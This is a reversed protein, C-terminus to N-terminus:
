YGQVKCWQAKINVLGQKEFWKNSMGFNTAYTRSLHWFSKSSIGAKVAMSENVGFRLLNRVKTRTYRWQKWLCMRIRRRLWGDLNHIPRYYESIGYYNMWGRIYLNLRSVRKQLSVGNTRGTLKKLNYKFDRFSKETWRVKGKQISFGLFSSETIRTVKSKDSNVKLKLKGTIFGVVGEMVRVAEAKSKCFIRLDDAYRCFIHNQKELEKDLIDLMINSLLPSLPGGQPTGMGTKVLTKNVIVGSRLYRGILKLLIKDKVKVSIRHMLIDHNVNDFFKELDIDVVWSCGRQVYEQMQYVADHASRGERFGFSSESFGPDFIPTLTQSIAQQILRDQVKPIGLMRKGGSKKPIEVRRVPSPIYKGESLGKLLKAWRNQAHAPYSEISVGDVGPAGKNSKVKKWALKLNQKALMKNMIHNNM